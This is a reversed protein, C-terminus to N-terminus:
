RRTLLFRSRILEHHNVHSRMMWINSGEREISWPPTLINDKGTLLSRVNDLGRGAYPGTATGGLWKDEPAASVSWSFPDAFLFAADAPRAVRNMEYLHALPYSVRDLLNLSSIQQFTGRSFPLAQANAVVFEVNDFRWHAPLQCQFKERLNGELPLSFSCQREHTLRRATRIFSPSLDCGVAWGSRAAMEFTLRGVACGADFSATAKEALCEVWAANASNIESDETLDSYQSWLYQNAVEGEEYRLQGGSSYENPEPLLTAIGDKIPFKRRCKKCYLEGTIIDDGELRKATVELSMEAPLCAPCILHPLLFQKM